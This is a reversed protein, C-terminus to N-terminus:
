KKFDKVEFDKNLKINSLHIKTKDALFNLNKINYYKDLVFNVDFSMESKKGNVKHYNLKSVEVKSNTLDIIGNVFFSKKNYNYIEKIKLNDFHNKVKIFGNLEMTHNSKSNIFKINADKLIIKPDYEPLYKKIIRREETHIEFYAINGETSYSLNKVKFQKDLKFNINTKLDVKGNVDKLNNINLGFLSSIKKIQSFNLKGNTRLLSKMKTENPDRQLNIITNALELEYISGKKIKVKFGDGNIHKVHNIETTLNKISFEKTM